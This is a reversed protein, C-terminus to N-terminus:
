KQRYFAGFDQKLSTQHDEHRRVYVCYIDTKVENFTFSKSSM